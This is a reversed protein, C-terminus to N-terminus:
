KSQIMLNQYSLTPPVGLFLTALLNSRIVLKRDTALLCCYIYVYHVKILCVKLSVFKYTHITINATNQAMMLINSTERLQRFLNQLGEDLNIILTFTRHM